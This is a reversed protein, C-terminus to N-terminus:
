DTVPMLTKLMATDHGVQELGSRFADLFDKNGSIIYGRQGTEIEQINDYLSETVRLSQLIAEAKENDRETERMNSYTLGALICIVVLALVFSAVITKKISFLAM